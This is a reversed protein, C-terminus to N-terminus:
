LFSKHAVLTWQSANESKTPDLVDQFHDVFGCCMQGQLEPVATM